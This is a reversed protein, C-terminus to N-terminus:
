HDSTDCSIRVDREMLELIGTRLAWVAEQQAQNLTGSRVVDILALMQGLAPTADSPGDQSGFRSEIEHM